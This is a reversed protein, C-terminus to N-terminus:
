YSLNMVAHWILRMSRLGALRKGRASAVLNIPHTMTIQSYVAHGALSLATAVETCQNFRQEVVENNKDSYPCAIFYLKM